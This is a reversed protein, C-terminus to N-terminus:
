DGVLLHAAQRVIASRRDEVQTTLPGRLKKLLAPFSDWEAAGGLLLAEIRVM